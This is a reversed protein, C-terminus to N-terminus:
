RDQVGDSQIKGFFLFRAQHPDTILDAVLLVVLRTLEEPPCKDAGHVDVRLPQVARHDGIKWSPHDRLRLDAGAKQGVHQNSFINVVKRVVSLLM